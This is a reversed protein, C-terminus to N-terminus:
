YKKFLLKSKQMWEETVAIFMELVDILYEILQCNKISENNAKDSKLIKDLDLFENEVFDEIIKKNDDRLVDPYKKIRQILVDSLM